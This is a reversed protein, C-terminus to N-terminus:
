FNIGTRMVLMKTQPSLGTTNSRMYFGRAYM